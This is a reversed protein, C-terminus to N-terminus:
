DPLRRGKRVVIPSGTAVFASLPPGSLAAAFDEGYFEGAPGTLRAEDASWVEWPPHEVQYEVTGGDRQAAYGWYHETIFEEEFGERWRRPAGTIRAGVEIEGLKRPRWRYSLSGAGDDQASRDGLAYPLRRLERQLGLTGGLRDGM